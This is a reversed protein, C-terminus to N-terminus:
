TYNETKMDNLGLFENEEYSREYEVAECRPDKEPYYPNQIFSNSMPDKLIVTFTMKMKRLAKLKEFFEHMRKKFLSDASDGFFPNNNKLSKEV